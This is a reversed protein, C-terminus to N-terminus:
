KSNVKEYYYIISKKLERNEDIHAASISGDEKHLIKITSSYFTPIKLSELTHALLNEEAFLFMNEDYPDNIKKLAASSFLLFSGHAAYIKKKPRDKKINFMFRIIKNIGIGLYFFLKGGKKFFTYVLKESLRNKRAWYPNQKKGKLNVISPAIVCEIGRFKEANFDNSLVKTDPNAIVLFDYDFRQNFFHIGVNNGHGYGKNETSIFLCDNQRAIEKIELETHEDFFSNVILIKYCYESYCTSISDILDQVDSFTKYTLVVFEFDIKM